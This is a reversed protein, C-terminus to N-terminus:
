NSVTIINSYESNGASNTAYVRYQDEGYYVTGNSYFFTIIDMSYFNDHTVDVGDGTWSSSGQPKHQIRFATENDSNDTWTLNIKAPTDPSTATNRPTITYQLNSPALPITAQVSNDDDSKSCSVLCLIVLSFLLNTKM